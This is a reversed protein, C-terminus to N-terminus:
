AAQESCHSTLQRSSQRMQALAYVGAEVETLGVVTGHTADATAWGELPQGIPSWSARYCNFVLNHKIALELGAAFFTRQISLLSPFIRGDAPLTETEEGAAPTWGTEYLRDVAISLSM